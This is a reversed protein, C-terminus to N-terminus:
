REEDEEDKKQSLGRCSANTISLTSQYQAEGGREDVDRLSSPLRIGEEECLMGWVARFKDKAWSLEQARSAQEAELERLRAKSAANAEAALLRKWVDDLKNQAIERKTGVVWLGRWQAHYRHPTEARLMAEQEEETGDPLGQAVCAAALKKRAKAKRGHNRDSTYSGRHKAGGHDSSRYAGAGAEDSYDEDWSGREQDYRRDIDKSRCQRARPTERHFELEDTDPEWRRKIGQERAASEFIANGRELEKQEKKEAIRDELLEYRQRRARSLLEQTERHAARETEYRERSTKLRIGLSQNDSELTKYRARLATVEDELTRTRIKEQVYLNNWDPKPMPASPRLKGIPPSRATMAAQSQNISRCEQAPVEPKVFTRDTLPRHHFQQVPLSGVGSTSNARRSTSQPPVICRRACNNMEPRPQRSQTEASDVEADMDEVKIQRLPQELRNASQVRSPAPFTSCICGLDLDFSTGCSKCCGLTKDDAKTM